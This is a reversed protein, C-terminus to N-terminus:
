YYPWLFYAHAIYRSINSVSIKYDCKIGFRDNSVYNNINRIVAM